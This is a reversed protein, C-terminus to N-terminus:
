NTHQLTKCQTATRRLTNCHTPWTVCLHTMHCIHILWTMCGFSDHWMYPHNKDRMSHSIDCFHVFWTVYTMLCICSDRWAYSQTMDCMHVLWTMFISSDHWVFLWYSQTMKCMRLYSYPMGCLQHLWTVCKLSDHYLCVCTLELRNTLICKYSLSLSPSCSLACALFGMWVYIYAEWQADSWHNWSHYVHVCVHIRLAKRTWCEFLMCIEFYLM